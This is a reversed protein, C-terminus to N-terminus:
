VVMIDRGGGTLCCTGEATVVYTEEVGVLGHGPVGCKPEIALVMQEALPQSMGRALVPAEDVQLGVGHGLFRVPDDTYGMFTANLEAPLEDLVHEYVEAPVAGPRILSLAQRLVQRCAAHTQKVQEDPPVGFSYIQTKDSHYGAVGYGVDIFVLDGKKLYRHRDGIIPVAPSMGRMGGPGDFNTPYLSNEGFGMQGVILEMQPMAFRSVGHHGQKLMAAYLEALLDTESMGERFLGPAIERLLRDHQRGSERILALEAPSKVARVSQVLRDVPRIRGLRFYNQLRNLAALTMMDADLGIEGLEQPLFPRLDRYSDVKSIIDLPCELCARTYSKRVFYRVFGDQRLVLLGDQMTGTLYYQNIKGILMVTDVDPLTNRILQMLKNQRSKLEQASPPDFM